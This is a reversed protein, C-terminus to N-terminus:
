LQIWFINLRRFWWTQKYRYQFEALNILIHNVLVGFQFNYVLSQMPNSPHNLKVDSWYYFRICPCIHIQLYIYAVHLRRRPTHMYTHTYTHIYTHIRTRTHTRARAHAHTHTHRVAEHGAWNYLTSPQWKSTTISPDFWGPKTCQVATETMKCQMARFAKQRQVYSLQKLWRVGSFPKKDILCKSTHFHHLARRWGNSLSCSLFFSCLEPHRLECQM